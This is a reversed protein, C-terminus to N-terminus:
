VNYGAFFEQFARAVREPTDRLGEREPDDGAWRLLTLVAGEVESQDPCSDTRESLCEATSVGEPLVISNM